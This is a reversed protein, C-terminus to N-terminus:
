DALLKRFRERVPMPTLSAKRILEAVAVGDIPSTLIGVRMMEDRFTTDLAMDMFAKRLIAAREPPLDAPAVVPLAM